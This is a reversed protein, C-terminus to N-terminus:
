ESLNQLVLMKYKHTFSTTTNLVKLNNCLKNWISPGIFSISKQGLNSKKLPIELAMHSRTNYMNRSPVFLENVYLPSTGKWYSFVETATSQEVREKSQLWNIKKLEKAGIHQRSNLKLYFHFFKNQTVQLKNRMKQNILPCWSICAYDFHAQILSNFLLRHLKPNLFESCRSLNFFLFECKMLDVKRIVLMLKISQFTFFLLLPSPPLSM